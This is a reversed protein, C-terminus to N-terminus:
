SELSIFIHINMSPLIKLICCQYKLFWNEKHLLLKKSIILVCILERHYADLAGKEKVVKADYLRFFYQVRANVGQDGQIHPPPPPPPRQIIFYMEPIDQKGPQSVGKGKYNGPYRGTIIWYGSQQFYQRSWIGRDPQTVHGSM